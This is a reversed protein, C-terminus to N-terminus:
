SKSITKHTPSKTEQKVVTPEPTPITGKGFNLPYIAPGPREDIIETPKPPTTM